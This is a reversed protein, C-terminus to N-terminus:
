ACQDFHKIQPVQNAVTVSPKKIVLYPVSIRSCLLGALSFYAFRGFERSMRSGRPNVNRNRVAYLVRYPFPPAESCIMPVHNRSSASNQDTQIQGGERERPLSPVPFSRGLRIHIALNTKFLRRQLTFQPPFVSAGCNTGYWM